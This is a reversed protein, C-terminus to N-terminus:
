RKKRFCIFVNLKNIKVKRNNMGPPGPKGPRGPEGKMPESLIFAKSRPKYMLM